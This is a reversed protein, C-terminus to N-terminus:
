QEFTHLIIVIHQKICILLKSLLLFYCSASHLQLFTKQCSDSEQSQHPMFIDSLDCILLLVSKLYIIPVHQFSLIFDYGQSNQIITWLYFLFTELGIFLSFSWLPHTYERFIIIIILKAILCLLLIDATFSQYQSKM